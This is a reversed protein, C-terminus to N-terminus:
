GLIKSALCDHRRNISPHSYCKNNWILMDLLYITPHEDLAARTVAFWQSDPSFSFSPEAVATTTYSIMSIKEGEV